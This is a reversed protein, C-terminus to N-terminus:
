LLLVWWQFTNANWLGHPIPLSGAPILTSRQLAKSIRHHLFGNTANKEIEKSPQFCGLRVLSPASCAGANRFTNVTSPKKPDVLSDPKCVSSKGQITWSVHTILRTFDVKWNM